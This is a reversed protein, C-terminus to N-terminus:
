WRLGSCCAQMLRESTGPLRDIHPTAMDPNEHVRLADCCLQDSLVMIPNPREVM